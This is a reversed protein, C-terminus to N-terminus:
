ISSHATCMRIIRVDWAIQRMENNGAIPNFVHTIQTVKKKKLNTIILSLDERKQLLLFYDIESM